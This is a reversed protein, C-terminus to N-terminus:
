YRHFVFGDMDRDGVLQIQVGEPGILHPIEEDVVEALTLLETNQTDPDDMAFAGAGQARAHM